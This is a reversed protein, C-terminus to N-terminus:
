SIFDPWTGTPQSPQVYDDFEDDHNPQHEDLENENEPTSIESGSVTTLKPKTTQKPEETSQQKLPLGQQEMQKWSGLQPSVESGIENQKQNVEAKVIQFSAIEAYDVYRANMKGQAHQDVQLRFPLMFISKQGKENEFVMLEQSEAFDLNDKKRHDKQYEMFLDGLTNRISNGHGVVILDSENGKDIEQVIQKALGNAREKDTTHTVDSSHETPSLTSNARITQLAKNKAVKNDNLVSGFGFIVYRIFSLVLFFKHLVSVGSSPALLAGYDSIKEIGFGSPGEAIETIKSSSIATPRYDKDNLGKIFNKATEIARTMTSFVVNPSTKKHLLASYDFKSMTVDAGSNINANPKMGFGKDSNTCEGHRFLHLAQFNKAGYGAALYQKTIEYLDQTLKANQESTPAELENFEKISSDIQNLYQRKALVHPATKERTM